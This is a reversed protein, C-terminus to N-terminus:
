PPASSLSQIQSTDMIFARQKYKKEVGKFKLEWPYESVVKDVFINQEARPEFETSIFESRHFNECIAESRRGSSRKLILLIIGVMNKTITREYPTSSRLNLQYFFTLFFCVLLAGM